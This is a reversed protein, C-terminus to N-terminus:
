FLNAETACTYIPLSHGPLGPHQPPHHVLYKLGCPATRRQGGSVLAAGAQQGVYAIKELSIKRHQNVGVWANTTIPTKLYDEPTQLFDEPTNIAFTSTLM